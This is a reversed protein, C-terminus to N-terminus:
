TILVRGTWYGNRDKWDKWDKWDKKGGLVGGDATREKKPDLATSQASQMEQIANHLVGAAEQSSTERCERIFTEHSDMVTGEDKQM